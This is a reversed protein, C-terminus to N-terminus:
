HREPPRYLLLAGAAGAIADKVDQPLAATWLVRGENLVDIAAVLAGDQSIEYGTVESLDFGSGAAKHTSRVPFSRGEGALVGEFNPAETMGGQVQALGLTWVPKGAPARLTATLSVEEDFTATLGHLFGRLVKKDAGSACNVAFLVKGGRKLNLEWSDKSSVSSYGFLSWSSSDKWGRHVDEATYDGIVLNESFNFNRGSVALPTASKEFADPLAMKALTCGAVATSLAVVLLTKSLNV